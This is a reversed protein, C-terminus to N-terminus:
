LFNKSEMLYELSTPITARSGASETDAVVGGSAMFEADIYLRYASEIQPVRLALNSAANELDVDLHYTAFGIANYDQKYTSSQWGRM